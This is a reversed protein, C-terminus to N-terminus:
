LCLFKAIDQLSDLKTELDILRAEARCLKVEAAERLEKESALQRMMASLESNKTELNRVLATLKDTMCVVGSELGFRYNLAEQIICDSDLDLQKARVNPSGSELSDCELGLSECIARMGPTLSGMPSSVRGGETASVAPTGVTVDRDFDRLKDSVATLLSLVRPDGTMEPVVALRKYSFLM